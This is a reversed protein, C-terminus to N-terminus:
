SIEDVQTEFKMVEPFKMFILKSMTSKENQSAKSPPVYCSTSIATSSRLQQLVHASM